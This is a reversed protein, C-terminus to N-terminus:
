LSKVQHTKAAPFLEHFSTVAASDMAPAAPRREAGPVPVNGLIVKLAALPLDKIDEAKAAGVSTLATRYVEEASDHAIALKGIYPRVAEEAERIARNTNRMEDKALTVAKAIAADMGKKDVMDKTAEKIEADRAAKEKEERKKKEEEDEDMAEQDDDLMDCAAKIDDDGMGKGKLFSALKAGKGEPAAAANPELDDGAPKERDILDLVKEVDEISADKALKDKAAARVAAAVNADGFKKVGSVLASFDVKADAALKPKLYSFLVGQAFAAQRSLKAMMAEKADAAGGFERKRIADARKALDEHGHMRAERAAALLLGRDYKGNKKVPYKKSAPELFTSGPLSERERSGERGIEERTKQSLKGEAEASEADAALLIAFDFLPRPKADAVVVDKGARGEKVLAVHNGAIDRMVGDYSEGEPSTGPTMDARYRYASSLEKQKESDILSIAEGDWVVLPAMLYPSKFEVENGVSGVTIERPHEDASVPQHVLLLPKGGFSAAAKELEGADRYLKYIRQPDLGLEEWGPIEKGVYPCVNAKSIPTQAVHLHGDADIKRVTARDLAVSDQASLRSEKEAFKAWEDETLASADKGAVRYAIAEAQKQPHGAKVLEAINSSVVASSSGRQLPM